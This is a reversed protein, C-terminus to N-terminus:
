IKRQKLHLIYLGRRTTDKDVKQACRFLKTSHIEWLKLNKVLTRYHDYLQGGENLPDFFFFGKRSNSTDSFYCFHEGTSFM